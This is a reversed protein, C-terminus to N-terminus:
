FQNKDVKHPQEGCIQSLMQWKEQFTETEFTKGSLHVALLEM